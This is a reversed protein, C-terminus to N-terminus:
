LSLPYFVKQLFLGIACGIFICGLLDTLITIAINYGGIGSGVSVSINTKEKLSKIESDLQETERTM